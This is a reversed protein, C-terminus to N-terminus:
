SGDSHGTAGQAADPWLGVLEDDLYVQPTRARMWPPVARTQFLRKLRHAHPNPQGDAVRFRLSLAEGHDQRALSEFLTARTAHLGIEPITLLADRAFRYEPRLQGSWNEVLYLRDRFVRLSYGDADIRPMSDNRARIQLLVEDLRRYGPPRRGGDQIWHRLLNRGRAASMRRLAECDLTLHPNGPMRRGLRQLDEGALEGILEHAEAQWACSRNLADISHPWRGDLMPLVQHRLFNRDFREHRNSLDEIWDLRHREAYDRIAPRQLALMPRVLLGRGLNQRPTIGRLGASGSGRMLNLLLTEAQDNAHHATLLM